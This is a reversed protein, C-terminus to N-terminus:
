QRSSVIETMHLVFKETGCATGLLSLSCFRSSELWPTDSTKDRERQTKDRQTEIASRTKRMHEFRLQVNRAGRGPVGARGSTFGVEGAAGAANQEALVVFEHGQLDRRGRLKWRGAAQIHECDEIIRGITLLVDLGARMVALEADLVFSIVTLASNERCCTNLYM